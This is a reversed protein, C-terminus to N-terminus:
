ISDLFELVANRVAPIKEVDHGGDVLLLEHSVGARELAAALAQGQTAPVLPDSRGQVILTRPDGRDVYTVPSADRLREPSPSTGLFADLAARGAANSTEIQSLDSPGSLTVVARVQKSRYGTMQALHGGASHGVLAIRTDPLKDVLWRIACDVDDVAEPFRSGLTYDITAATKGGGALSRIVQSYRNRSGSRWGGGHIFVVVVPSTGKAPIAIDLVASPKTGCYRVGEHYGPSLRSERPKADPEARTGDAPSRDPQRTPATSATEPAGCSALLLTLFINLAANM